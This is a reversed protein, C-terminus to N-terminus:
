TGTRPEMARMAKEAVDVIAIVRMVTVSSWQRLTSRLAEVVKLSVLSAIPLAVYSISTVFCPIFMGKGAIAATAPM